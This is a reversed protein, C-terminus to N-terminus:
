PAQVECEDCTANTWNPPCECSFFPDDCLQSCTGGHKCPASLCPDERIISECNVGRYNATCNCTYGNAVLQCQGGNQCPNSGC